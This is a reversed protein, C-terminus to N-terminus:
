GAAPRMEQATDGGTLIERLREGVIEAEGPRLGEPMFVITGAAASHEFVFIRPEGEQLANIVTNADMGCTAREVSVVAHPSQRGNQQPFRVFGSVGPLGKVASVIKAM